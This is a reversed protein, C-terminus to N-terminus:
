YPRLNLPIGAIYSPRAAEYLCDGGPRLLKVCCVEHSSKNLFEFYGSIPLTSNRLSAPPADHGDEGYLSGYRLRLRRAAPLASVTAEELETGDKAISVINKIKTVNQEIIRKHKHKSQKRAPDSDLKAQAQMMLYEGPTEGRKCSLCIKKGSDFVLCDQCFVGGCQRCHHKFYKGKIDFKSDCERCFGVNEQPEWYAPRDEELIGDEAAEDARLEQAEALKKASKVFSGLM